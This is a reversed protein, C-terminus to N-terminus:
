CAQRADLDYRAAAGAVPDGLETVRAEQDARVKDDHRRVIEQVAQSSTGAAEAIAAYTVGQERARLISSVYNQNAKARQRAIRKVVGTASKQEATLERPRRSM